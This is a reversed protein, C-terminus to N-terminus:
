SQYKIITDILDGVNKMKIVDKIKFKISFEKEVNAIMEVHSLSDWGNVDAATMERFIVIDNKKFVKNFIQTLKEIIQNETM